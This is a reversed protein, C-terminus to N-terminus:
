PIVNALSENSAPGSQRALVPWSHGFSMEFRAGVVWANRLNRDTGPSVVWQVGPVIALWSQLPARYTLEVATESKRPLGGDFALARKFSKGTRGHAFALGVADDPRSAIFHSAVM